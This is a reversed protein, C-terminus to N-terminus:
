PRVTVTVDTYGLGEILGSIVTIARQEALDLIGGQLAQDVLVEEAALRAARELQPDGKTFLGTDRDYVQTAETDPAVYTIQAAPLRIVVRGAERDVAIDDATMEALDVGAGIRAVAIMAIRDGTAWNLWGRDDGKEISTYEVVEVTTLSALDRITQVTVPGLNTYPGEGTIGGLGDAVDDVVGATRGAIFAVSGVIVLFAIALATLIIRATRSM